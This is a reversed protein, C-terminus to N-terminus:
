KQKKLKNMVERRKILSEIYQDKPLKIDPTNLEKPANTYLMKKVMGSREDIEREQKEGSIMKIVNTLYEGVDMDLDDSDAEIEFVKGDKYIHFENRNLVSDDYFVISGITGYKHILRGNSVNEYMKVFQDKIKIKMGKGAKDDLQKLSFGLELKFIEIQRFHRLMFNNAVIQIDKSKKNM